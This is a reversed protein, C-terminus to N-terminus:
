KNSECGEKWICEARKKDKKVGIGNWYMNAVNHIADPDGAEQAIFQFLKFAQSEDKRGGEGYLYMNALNYAAEMNGQKAAKQYLQRAVKDNKSVVAGEQYAQALNFQAHTDREILAADKLLQLGQKKNQELRLGYLNMIAYDNTPLSSQEVNCEKTPSSPSITESESM